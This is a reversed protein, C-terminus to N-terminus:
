AQPLGALDALALARESWRAGLVLAAAVAGSGSAILIAGGVGALLPRLICAFSAMAAAPALFRLVPKTERLVLAVVAIPGVGFLAAAAAGADAPLCLFAGAGWCVGALILILDLDRSFSKLAERDFPEVIARRYALAVTGAAATMFVTWSLNRGNWAESSLLAIGSMLFLALSLQSSRGLLNALRATESAEDHLAALRRLAEM